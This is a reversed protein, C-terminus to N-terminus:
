ARFFWFGVAYLRREVPLTEALLFANVLVMTGGLATLLYYSTQWGYTGLAGGVVPQPFPLITESRPDADRFSSLIAYVLSRDLYSRLFLSDSRAVEFVLLICM